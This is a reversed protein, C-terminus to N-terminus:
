LIAESDKHKKMFERIALRVLRSITIDKEACFAEMEMREQVPLRVGISCTITRSNESKENFNM